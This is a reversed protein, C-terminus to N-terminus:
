SEPFLYQSSFIYFAGLPSEPGLLPLHFHPFYVRAVLHVTNLSVAVFGWFIGAHMWGAGFHKPDLIRRQGLYYVLVGKVREWHRNIRDVPQAALLVKIRQIMLFVFAGLAALLMASFILKAAMSATPSTLM